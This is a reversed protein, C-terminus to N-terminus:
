ARQGLFVEVRAAIGTTRTLALATFPATESILLALSDVPITQATGDASTLTADVKSGTVKVAVVAASTLGGMSVTVPSDATLDYTASLMRSLGVTEDLATACYLSGSPLGDSPEAVFSGQVKFTYGM